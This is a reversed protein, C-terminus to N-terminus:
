WIELGWLVLTLFAPLLWLSSSTDVPFGSWPDPMGAVAVVEWGGAERFLSAKIHKGGTNHPKTM